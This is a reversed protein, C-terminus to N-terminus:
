FAVDLTVYISRTALPYYYSIGDLRQQGGPMPNFFLYSYGSPWIRKSGLLNTAQLRIKPEGQKVWHGLSLTLTADLNFWSPTMFDPNGTNDLQSESVWRAGLGLGLAPRPTWDVVGNLLVEPTLLPPVDRHVVAVSDVWAGSPAYVDYHQTWEDIRNRSLNASGLVRWKPYPAWDLELELGRRYSRPVNRRVPLGIESLEGSLAIEDRFEMAYVGARLRM